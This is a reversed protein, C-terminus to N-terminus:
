FVNCQPACQHRGGIKGCPEVEGVRVDIGLPQRHLLEGLQAGGRRDPPVFLSRTVAATEVVTAEPGDGFKVVDLLHRPAAVDEGTVLVPHDRAEVVVDGTLVDLNLPEDHQVHIGRVVGAQALDDRAAERGAGDPAQVVLQM